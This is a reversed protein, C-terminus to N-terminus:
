RDCITAVFQDSFLRVNTSAEAVYYELQQHIETLKQVVDNVDQRM